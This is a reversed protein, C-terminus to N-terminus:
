FPLDDEIAPENNQQQPKQYGSNEQRNGGLMEINSAIIETKYRKTGNNDDWSRTKLKGEIYVKSGKTLYSSCIDALKGWAVVSHWETSEKKNGSRDTYKETTAVSFNVVSGSQTTRSEPDKGLCGILMIKQM